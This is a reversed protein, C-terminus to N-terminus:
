TKWLGSLSASQVWFVCSKVLFFFMNPSYFCLIQCIFSCIKVILVSTPWPHHDSSAAPTEWRMPEWPGCAHSDRMENAVCANIISWLCAPTALRYVHMHLYVITMYTSFLWTHTSLCCDQDIYPVGHVTSHTLIANYTLTYDANCQINPHLWCQM